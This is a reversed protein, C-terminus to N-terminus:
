RVPSGFISSLQNFAYPAFLAAGGTLYPWLDSLKQIRAADPDNIAFFIWVGLGTVFSALAISGISGAVRSFSVKGDPDNKEVLAETIVPKRAQDKPATLTASVLRLGWFLVMLTVVIPLWVDPTFSATAVVTETVTETNAPDIPTSAPTDAM